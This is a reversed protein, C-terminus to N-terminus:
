DLYSIRKIRKGAQGINKNPNSFQMQKSDEELRVEDIIMGKKRKIKQESVCKVGGSGLGKRGELRLSVLLEKMKLGDQAQNVAKDIKWKSGTRLQSQLSRVAPDESDELM